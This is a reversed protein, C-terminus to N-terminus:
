GTDRKKKTNYTSTVTYNCSTCSASITRYINQSVLNKAIDADVTVGSTQIAAPQNVSRKTVTAVGVTATQEMTRDTVSVAAPCDFYM